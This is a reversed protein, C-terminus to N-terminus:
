DLSKQYYAIATDYVKLGEYTSGVNNTMAAANNKDGISDLVNLAQLYYKLSQRFDDMNYYINGMNGLCLAFNDKNGLQRLLELAKKCYELAKTDNRMSGIYFSSLCNYVEVRLNKYNKKECIDLAKLYSDLAKQNNSKLKYYGGEDIYAVIESSYYNNKTALNLAEEADHLAEEKAYGKQNYINAADLLYKIRMSDIKEDKLKMLLSDLHSTPNGYSRCFLLIFLLIFHSKLSHM